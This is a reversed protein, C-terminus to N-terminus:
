AWYCRLAWRCRANLQRFLRQAKLHRPGIQGSRKLKVGRPIKIKLRQFPLQLNPWRNILDPHQITSSKGTHNPGHDSTSNEQSVVSFGTEPKNHLLKACFLFFFVPLDQHTITIPIIIHLSQLFQTTSPEPVTLSGGNSNHKAHKITLSVHDELRKLYYRLQEDPIRVPFSHISRLAM